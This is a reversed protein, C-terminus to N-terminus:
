VIQDSEIGKQKDEDYVKRIKGNEIVNEMPRWLYLIFITAVFAAVTDLIRNWLNKM